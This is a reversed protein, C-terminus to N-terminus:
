FIRDLSVKKPNCSNYYNYTAKLKNEFAKWYPGIWKLNQTKKM